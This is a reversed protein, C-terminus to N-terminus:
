KNKAKNAQETMHMINGMNSDLPANGKMAENEREVKENHLITYYRRDQIPMDMIEDLTFGVITRLGFIEQRLPIEYSPNLGNFVFDQFRWRISTRRVMVNKYRVPPFNKNKRSFIV